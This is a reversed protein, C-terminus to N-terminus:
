VEAPTSKKARLRAFLEPIAETALHEVFQNTTGTQRQCM